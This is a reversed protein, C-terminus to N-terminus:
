RIKSGFFESRTAHGDASINKRQFVTIVTRALIKLDLWLSHHEVYWLDLEFQREWSLGNRGNVQAWGTIGPRINHRQNQRPTYRELYHIPLPRPGVLSMEGRLVNWLEPLEDLSTSRLFKGWPTLRDADSGGDNLMTRFKLISLSQGKLGARDQRFFIPKGMLTLQLLCLCALPAWLVSLLFLTGLIDFLRKM